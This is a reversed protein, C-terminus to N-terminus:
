HREQDGFTEAACAEKESPTATPEVRVLIHSAKVQTGSFLDKHSAAFKKLEPDTANADLFEVWRIRNAYEKRVDTMSMGTRLIESALDNGNQALQKKLSEIAKDVKEESVAIKQSALYQNILHTNVLTEMADKYAVAQDGDPIQYNSLFNVLEGRM